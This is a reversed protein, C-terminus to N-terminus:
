RPMLLLLKNFESQSYKFKYTRVLLQKNKFKYKTVMSIVKSCLNLSLLTMWPLWRIKKLCNVTIFFYWICLPWKLHTSNSLSFFTDALLDVIFKFLPIGQCFNRLFTHLLQLSICSFENCVAQVYFNAVKKFITSYSIFFIAALTADIDYPRLCPFIKAIQKQVVYIWFNLSTHSSRMWRAFCVKEVFKM